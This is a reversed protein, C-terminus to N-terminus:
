RKSWVRHLGLYRYARAVMYATQRGYWYWHHCFNKKRGHHGYMYALAPLRACFSKRHANYHRVLHAYKKVLNNYHNKNMKHGNKVIHNHLKHIRNFHHNMKKMNNQHAVRSHHMRKINHVRINKNIKMAQSKHQVMPIANIMSIMIFAILLKM